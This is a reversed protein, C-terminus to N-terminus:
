PTDRSSNMAPTALSTADLTGSGKSRGTSLFSIPTGLGVCALATNHRLRKSHQLLAQCSTVLLGVAGRVPVVVWWLM